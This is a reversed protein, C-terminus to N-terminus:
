TPRGTMWAWNLCPIPCASTRACNSSSPWSVTSGRSPLRLYAALRTIREEIASRNFQLVYPMFTANTMGHHTDYLAGVPHSLAHMGGLGKQFATAGMAAAALMQARAELDSPTHVAKVLSNAVLRM